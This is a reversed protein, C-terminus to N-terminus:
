HHAISLYHFTMCFDTKVYLILYKPCLIPMPTAGEFGLLHFAKSCYFWASKATRGGWRAYLRAQM